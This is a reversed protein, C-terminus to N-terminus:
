RIPRPAIFDYAENEIDNEIEEKLSQYMEQMYDSNITVGNGITSGLYKKNHVSWKKWCQMELHKLFLENEYLLEADEVEMYDVLFSSIEKSNIILRKSQSNFSYDVKESFLKSYEKIRETMILYTSTDTIDGKLMDYIPSIGSYSYNTLGGTITSSGVIRKISMINSNMIFDKSNLTNIISVKRNVADDVREYMFNLSSNYIDEFNKESIEVRHAESGLQRLIYEKLEVINTIYNM